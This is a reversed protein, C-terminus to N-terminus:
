YLKPLLKRLRTARSPKPRSIVNMYAKAFKDWDLRLAQIYVAGKTLIEDFHGKAQKTKAFAQLKQLAESYAVFQEEVDEITTPFRVTTDNYDKNEDNSREENLAKVARVYVPYAFGSAALVESPVKQMFEREVAQFEIWSKYSLSEKDRMRASTEARQLSLASLNPLM